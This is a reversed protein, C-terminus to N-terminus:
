LKTREYFYVSVQDEPSAAVLKHRTRQRPYLLRRRSLAAPGDSWAAAGWRLWGGDELENGVGGRRSQRREDRADDRAAEASRMARSDGGNAREPHRPHKETDRTQAREKNGTHISKAKASALM